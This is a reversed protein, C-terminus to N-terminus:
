TWCCCCMLWGVVNMLTDNYLHSKLPEEDRIFIGGSQYGREHESEKWGEFENM